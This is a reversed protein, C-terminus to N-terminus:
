LGALVDTVALLALIANPMGPKEQVQVFEWSFPVVGAVPRPFNLTDGVYLSPVPVGHASLRPKLCM